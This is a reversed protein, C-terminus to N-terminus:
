LIGNEEFEETLGFVAATQEFHFGWERLEAYSMSRDSAWHQWDIAQQRAEDATTPTRKLKDRMTDGNM